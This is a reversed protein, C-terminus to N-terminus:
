VSGPGDGATVASLPPQSPDAPYIWGGARLLSADGTLLAWKAWVEAELAGSALAIVGAIGSNVPRGDAPSVLHHWPRGGVRWMRRTVASTALGGVLVDVANWEQRSRPDQLNITWAVDASWCAVDGGCDVCVRTARPANERILALLTDAAFGKGVAGPDYATGPPLTIRTGDIAIARWRGRADPAALHRPLERLGEDWDLEPGDARSRAYDGAHLHEVILPDVLGGTLEAAWLSARVCGLMRPSAQVEGDRNLASTQSHDRFRSVEDEFAELWAGAAAIAAAGEAAPALVHMAITSGLAKLGVSHWEREVPRIM